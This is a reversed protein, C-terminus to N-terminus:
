NGATIAVDSPAGGLVATLQLQLGGLAMVLPGVAAAVAGGSSGGGGQQQQARGAAGSNHLHAATLLALLYRQLAPLM